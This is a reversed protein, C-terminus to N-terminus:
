KASALEDDIIAKFAEFPQAGILQRGNVFFAPTGTVGFSSGEQMAAKVQDATKRGDFCETWRAMDIGADKLYETAKDKVNQPTVDKQGEFFGRYVKWFADANQQKACEAAIAGTEAWQHFPL